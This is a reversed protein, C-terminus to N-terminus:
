RPRLPEGGDGCVSAVVALSSAELALNCRELSAKSEPTRVDRDSRSVPRRAPVTSDHSLGGASTASDLRVGPLVPRERAFITSKPSIARTGSLIRGAAACWIYRHCVVMPFTSVGTQHDALRALLPGCSVPPSRRSRLPHPETFEGFALRLHSAGSITERVM